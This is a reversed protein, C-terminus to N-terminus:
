SQECDDVSGKTRRLGERAAAPWLCNNFQRLPRSNVIGVDPMKQVGRVVRVRHAHEVRVVRGCWLIHGLDSGMFVILYVLGTTWM